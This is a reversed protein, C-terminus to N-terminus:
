LRERSDVSYIANKYDRTHIKLNKLSDKLFSDMSKLRSTETFVRGDIPKNLLDILFSAWKPIALYNAGPALKFNLNSIKYIPPHNHKFKNVAFVSYNFKLLKKIIIKPINKVSVPWSEFLIIPPNNNNLWELGGSLVEYEFGEVDIKIFCKGRCLEFDKYVSDLTVTEVEELSGYNKSNVSDCLTNGGSGCRCTKLKVTGAINSLAKKFIRLDNEMKNLSVAKKFIELVRSFPEFAFVKIGGKGEKVVLLSFFGINAGIDVFNDIHPILRLIIITECLECSYHGTALPLLIDFASSCLKFGYPTSYSIVDPYFKLSLDSEKFIPSHFNVFEPAIQNYNKFFSLVNSLIKGRRSFCRIPWNQQRCIERWFYIFNIWYSIKLEPYSKEYRLIFEEIEMLRSDIDKILRENTILYSENIM